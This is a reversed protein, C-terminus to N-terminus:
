SFYDSIHFFKYKIKPTWAHSEKYSWNRHESNITHANVLPTGIYDKATVISNHNWRGDGEFDYCIVDGITLLEPNIIPTATLGKKNNQLYSNLMHAVAWSYSWSDSKSGYGRYWWGMGVNGLKMPAGGAWLCQSVYNTCDNEFHLFRPNYNNWWNNAYIVVKERNYIGM